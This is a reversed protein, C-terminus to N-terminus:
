SKKVSARIAKPAAKSGMSDTLQKTVATLESVRKSLSDIDKKTPVNLGHLAKGVREEFVHELKGWTGSAQQKVDAIKEGAVKTARQQVKEGERVLTDFFKAGEEQAKAFAGLGALWIQNASDKVAAVFKGDVEKGALPKAKKVM